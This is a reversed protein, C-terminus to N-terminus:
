VRQARSAAIPVIPATSLTLPLETDLHEETLAAAFSARSGMLQPQRRQGGKEMTAFM